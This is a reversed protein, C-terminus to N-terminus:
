IRGERKYRERVKREAEVAAKRDRDIKSAKTENAKAKSDKGSLLAKVAEFDYLEKPETIVFRTKDGIQETANNAERNLLIVKSLLFMQNNERHLKALMRDNFEEFSM